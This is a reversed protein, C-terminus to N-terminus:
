DWEGITSKGGEKGKGVLLKESSENNIYLFAASRQINITSLATESFENALELLTQTSIQPNERYPKRNHHVFLSLKVEERGIHIGIEKEQRIAIELVELVRNFLLPLLPCGQRTGSKLPLAKLKEGNHTLNATPKDYIAKRTNFYTGKIGVKILTKIMFLYQIKDLAKEADISIIMHSKKKLSNICYIAHVLKCINFWGQMGPSFGM